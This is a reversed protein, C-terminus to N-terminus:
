KVLSEVCGQLYENYKNEIFKVAKQDQKEVQNMDMANLESIIIKNMLANSVIDNNVKKNVQLVGKIEKSTTQSSALKEKLDELERTLVEIHEATFRQLKYKGVEFSDIWAFVSMLADIESQVYNSSQEKIEAKDSIRSELDKVVKNLQEIDFLINNKKEQLKENRTFVKKLLDSKFSPTKKIKKEVDKLEAVSKALKEKETVLEEQLM